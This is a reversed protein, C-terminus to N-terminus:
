TSPDFYFWILKKTPQNNKPQNNAHWNDHPCNDREGDNWSSWQRGQLFRHNWCYNHVEQKSHRHHLDKGTPRM